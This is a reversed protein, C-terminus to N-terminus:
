KLGVLLNMCFFQTLGWWSGGVGGFFVWIKLIQNQVLEFFFKKCWGSGEGGGWRCGGFFLFLFLVFFLKKKLWVRGFEAQLKIEVEVLLNM